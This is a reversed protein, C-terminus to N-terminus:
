NHVIFQEKMVNVRCLLCALHTANSHCPALLPIKGGSQTCWLAPHNDNRASNLGTDDSNALLQAGILQHSDDRPFVHGLSPHGCITVKIM